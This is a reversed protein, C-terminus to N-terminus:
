ETTPVATLMATVMGQAKASDRRSNLGRRTIMNRNVTVMNM